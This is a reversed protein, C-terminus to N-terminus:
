VDEFEQIVNESTIVPGYSILCDIISTLNLNDKTKYALLYLLAESTLLIFRKIDTNWTIENTFTELNTKFSNSVIIFGIKKYGDKQLKPCYYNIYERIARDDLGLSYGSGYAKADVIFATNEERNKVIADPNRGSGQGLHEVEFDLLKFIESVLKEYEYGKASGSKSTDNGYEVLKAVKPIVYDGLLFNPQFVVETPPIKTSPMAKKDNGPKVVTTTVQKFNWFAHEADWNNIKNGAHESIIKKVQENIDFFQAYAERQSAPIRWLGLDTLALIISTYYIPWKEPDHIQWFYSLFYSASGPNPAKRKDKAKTFINKAYAELTEIKQLAEDLNIPPSICKELLTQLKSLDESTKVLQNFFMQGKVATFGWYNNQKNYSDLNTKFDNLSSKRDFFEQIISKVSPIAKLRATDIDEFENGRTDVVRKNSSVYDKWIRIIQDKNLQSLM